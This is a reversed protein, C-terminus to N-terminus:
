FAYYITTLMFLLHQKPFKYHIYTTHICLTYVIMYIQYSHMCLRSREQDNPANRDILKLIFKMWLNDELSQLLSPWYRSYDRGTVHNILYITM